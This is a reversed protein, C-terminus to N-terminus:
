ATAKRVAIKRGKKAVVVTTPIEDPEDDEDEDKNKNENEHKPSVESTEVDVRTITSPEVSDEDDSDSQFINGTLQQTANRHVRVFACEWTTGVKGTKQFWLRAPRVIPEIVCRSTIYSADVTNMDSDYIISTIKREKAPLKVKINFYREEMEGDQNEIEKIKLFPVFKDSKRWSDDISSKKLWTQSKDKLTQFILDDFERLKQITIQHKPNSKDFSLTISMSGDDNENPDFPHRMAPLQVYLWENADGYSLFVNDTGKPNKTERKDSFHLKSFDVDKLRLTKNASAM